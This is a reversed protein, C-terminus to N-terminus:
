GLADQIKPKPKPGDNENLHMVRFDVSLGTNVISYPLM